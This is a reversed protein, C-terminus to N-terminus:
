AAESEAAHADADAVPGELQRTARPEPLAAAGHGAGQPNYSQDQAELVAVVYTTNRQGSGGASADEMLRPQPKNFYGMGQGGPLLRHSGGEIWGAATASFPGVNGQSDAWRAWYVVRMPVRPMPPALVIPNRTYSRLYWARGAHNASPHNPIDEDPGVLDVFLEIRVAGVPRTKSNSHVERFELEHMPSSGNGEHLARVFKLRPPAKPLQPARPKGSRQPIRFVLRAETSIQDSVRVRDRLRTVLRKAQDRAENKVRTALESRGGGTRCARLAKGFAMAAAFLAESEERSAGFKDPEAAVQRAVGSIRSLLEMENTPLFKGNAKPMADNDSSRRRPMRARIIMGASDARM